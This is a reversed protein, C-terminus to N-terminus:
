KIDGINKNLLDYIYEDLLKDTNDLSNCYAEWTNEILMSVTMPGVGKPVPTYYEAYKNKFEESFDGCLKGDEDRNIGVDIIIRDRNNEFDGYFDHRNDKFYQYADEESILNPKGVASIIIDAFSFMRLLREKPTKSHAQIVTCDRDLLLKAIPKGVIESRGIILATKGKYEFNPISDLLRLIGKPTCPVFDSDFNFGDVDKEDKVCNTIFDKEEKSLVNSVIPLQIIIGHVEPNINLQNLEFCIRQLDDDASLEKHICKMGVKECAKKKNNVYIKSAPDDGVTIIALTIKANSTEIKNKITDLIQNSLHKGDIIKM